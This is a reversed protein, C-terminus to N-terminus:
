NRFRGRISLPRERYLGYRAVKGVCHGFGGSTVWGIVRGDRWIPEDGIAAAAAAEVALTALRLKGATEKEEAAAARGVFDNKRLDVFRGLAATLVTSRDASARGRAL